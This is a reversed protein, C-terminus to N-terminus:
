IYSKEDTNIDLNMIIPPFQIAENLFKEDNHGREDAVSLTNDSTNRKAKTDQEFYSEVKSKFWNESPKFTTKTETSYDADINFEEYLTAFKTQSACASLSINRLMDVKQDAFGKILKNIIPIM